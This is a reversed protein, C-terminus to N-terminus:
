KYGVRSTGGKSRKGAIVRIPSRAALALMKRGSMRHSAVPYRTVALRSYPISGSGWNDTIVAGNVDWFREGGSCGCGRVWAEWNYIDNGVIENHDLVLSTPTAAPSYADLLEGTLRGPGVPGAPRGGREVVATCRDGRNGGSERRSELILDGAGRELPRPRRRM